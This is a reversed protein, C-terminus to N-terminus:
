IFCFVGGLMIVVVLVFLIFPIYIYTGVNPAIHGNSTKFRMRCPNQLFGIPKLALPPSALSLFSSFSFLLCSTLPFLFAVLMAEGRGREYTPPARPALRPARSAPPCGVCGVREREPTSPARPTPRPGRSAPICGVHGGEGKEYPHTLFRPAHRPLLHLPSSPRPLLSSALPYVCCSLVWRGERTRLSVSHPAHSTPRPLCSPM